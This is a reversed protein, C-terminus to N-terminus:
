LRERITTVVLYRDTNCVALINLGHWRWGRLIRNIQSHTKGDPSIWTCELHEWEVFAIVVDKM